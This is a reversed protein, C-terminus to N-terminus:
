PHLREIRQDACQALLDSVAGLGPIVLQPAIEALPALVFARQHMRPHPLILQADDSILDGYLLLDLDLTRPANPVPTAFDRQRGFRAEIAFLEALFTPAPSVACMEVVANIFDPQHTLGVPATRYLSSAAVLKAQPLERLAAMAARVTAVPDGLNAGLAVFCRVGAM